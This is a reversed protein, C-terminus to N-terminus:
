LSPLDLVVACLGAPKFPVAWPPCFWWGLFPAIRRVLGVGPMKAEVDAIDGLDAALPDDKAIAIVKWDLEGGDIM